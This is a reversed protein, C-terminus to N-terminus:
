RVTRQIILYVALRIIVSHSTMNGTLVHNIVGCETENKQRARFLSNQPKQLPMDARETRRLCSEADTFLQIGVNRRLMNDKMKLPNSVRFFIM